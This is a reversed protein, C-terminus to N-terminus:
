STFFISRCSLEGCMLGLTRNQSTPLLLPVSLKGKMVAPAFPTHRSMSGLRNCSPFCFAFSAFTM